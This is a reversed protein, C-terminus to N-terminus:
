NIGFAGLGAELGELDAIMDNDSEKEASTNSTDPVIKGQVIPQQSVIKNVFTPNFGMEYQVELLRMYDQMSKKSIKNLDIGSRMIFDHALIGLFKSQKHGCVELLKICEAQYINNEDLYLSKKKM